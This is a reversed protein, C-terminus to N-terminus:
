GLSRRRVGQRRRQIGMPWVAGGGPECLQGWLSPHPNTAAAPSLGVGSGRLAKTGPGPGSRTGQLSSHEPEMSSAQGLLQQESPMVVPVVGWGGGEGLSQIRHM